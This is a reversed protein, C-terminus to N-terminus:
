KRMIGLSTLDDYQDDEKIGAYLLYGPNEHQPDLHPRKKSCYLRYQDFHKELFSDIKEDVLVVDQDTAQPDPYMRFVKEVSVLAIIKEELGGTCTSFDFSLAGQPVPDHAKELRYSGRANVAELVATLREYGFEENDQGGTHNGHPKEKEADECSIVRFDRDRFHRKAEEIGDTYLLLIDGSELKRPVQVFPTKMQVMFSPFIGAAPSDPLLEEVVRQARADWVHLKRDGAECLYAKGEESDWLGLTFAAFRKGEYGREEIFDNIRYAIGTLDINRPMAKKWENFYNIVMTAVEVMILAASVGKGSIDCKIFYHYRSNISRFDWYDGSVGKAGEYYGFVEFSKEDRRGTSLKARSSSADLPIFMKQIGKGVILEKSAKAAKVLGETMQNVTEALDYLEDRSAVEIREGALDEKDPTDRIHEIQKVLKSIPVVIILSLLFAGAIGLGLAVAAIILTIRIVNAQARVVDAVIRDTSVEIRVMGRYYLQDNTQVYLVPKYFVYTRPKLELAGPDFAPVSGVSRSAIAFLRDNLASRLRTVTQSIEEFRRKAAEDTAIRTALGIAERNLDTISKNIDGVQAAAAADIEAAIAAIKPSLPDKIRSTGPDLGSTDIKAALGPDNSAWVADPDTAKKAYGTVTVYLADDMAQKQQPLFGLQLTDQNPLYTRAGQAVSELLVLARQQLGQALSASEARTVSVGLPVAVLFVVFLALLAIFLTFKVRLGLGRRGLKREKRTKAASPRPGGYVLAQVQLRVAFGDRVAAIAQGSSLVVGLGGFLVAVLIVADYISFRFVRPAVPIWSPVYATEVGYKITGSVDIAVKPGTWYWGRKPHFLGIRYSGAEADEFGFGDIQRDSRIRFGGDALDREIDYPEKGDRDLVVKTIDGDAAFGKGIISLSTKGLDDRSPDSYTVLTYPVYKNARLLITSADSINGVDDVAAVSLLYYGDDVDDWSASPSSGLIRRPPLPPGANAVLASEYADLGPLPPKAAAGPAKLGASVGATELAGAYRLEWTYGAIPEKEPSTWRVTFTNSALFGKDDLDPHLVLPPRPPTLKRVYSIRMPASWNGAIDQVEASLFWPGDEGANEVVRNETESVPAMVEHPPEAAPDR